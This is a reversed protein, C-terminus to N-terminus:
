GDGDQALVPLVLRSPETGGSFVTQRAVRLEADTEFPRGTNHNRDFAPFDSSTIDLRIRSGARFLIGAIMMRITVNVPRDPELPVERDYGERYRMRLMGQCLNIALGDDGVEILRAIFDTDPCDSAVRLVCSVPGIVAVDERLPQTQYVLVDRRDRLPAQDCCAAQGSPGVLSPVPDAPDYVYSDQWEEAPLKRTLGAAAGDLHYAVERSQRPPWADFFRWRNENVMFVRVPPEDGLGNDIGKLVHDYWRAILAPLDLKAAEGYSRPLPQMQPTEVDHVWPGVILRHAERLEPPGNVRMGEFHEVASNIRDWWGTLTCTPVNVRPHLEGLRYFERAIDRWYQRLKAADPGFLHDPVDALPLQWLYRGRLLADWHHMSEAETAPYGTDGIRRRSSVAMQQHWRLRIGTEFIGYTNALTTVPFGSTFIAKLSLPQSGAMQWILWSPYSNGFTGVREDSGDLRAAWECSDYGDSQEVPAGTEDLHWCWEGDSAHRGRIDQVVAVYGRQALETAMYRYRPHTKDYCTRCLLVPSPPAGKRRYIDARLITGDRVRCEADIQRHVRDAQTEVGVVSALTGM